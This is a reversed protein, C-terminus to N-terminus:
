LECNLFEAELIGQLKEKEVVKDAIVLRKLMLRFRFLPVKMQCERAYSKIGFYWDQCTRNANQENQGEIKM